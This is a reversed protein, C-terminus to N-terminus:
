SFALSFHCFLDVLPNHGPFCCLKGYFLSGFTQITRIAQLPQSHLMTNHNVISTTTISHVTSTTSIGRGWPKLEHMYMYIYCVRGLVMDRGGRGKPGNVLKSSFFYSHFLFVRINSLMKSVKSRPVILSRSYIDERGEILPDHPYIPDLNEWNIAIM